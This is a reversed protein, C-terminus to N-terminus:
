PRTRPLTGRGRSSSESAVLRRMTSCPRRVPSSSAAVEPALCSSSVALLGAINLEVVLQQVRDQSVVRFVDVVSMLQVDLQGVRDQLLVKSGGRATRVSHQALLSQTSPFVMLVRDETHAM